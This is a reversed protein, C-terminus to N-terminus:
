RARSLPAAMQAPLTVPFITPLPPMAPKPPDFRTILGPTPTRLTQLVALRRDLEADDISAPDLQEDIYGAAGLERVRERDASTPGFTVRDLLHDIAAAGPSGAIAAPAFILLISALLSTGGPTRVM